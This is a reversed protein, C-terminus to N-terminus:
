AAFAAIVKDQKVSNLDSNINVINCVYVFALFTLILLAVLSYDAIKIENM